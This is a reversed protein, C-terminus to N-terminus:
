RHDLANCYSRGGLLALVNLVVLALVLIGTDIRQYDVVVVTLYVVPLVIAMWFSLASFAMKIRHTYEAHVLRDIVPSSFVSSEKRSM